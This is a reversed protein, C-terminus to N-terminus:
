PPLPWSPAKSTFPAADDAPHRIHRVIQKVQRETLQDLMFRSLREIAPGSVPGVRIDCSGMRRGARALDDALGPANRYRRLTEVM